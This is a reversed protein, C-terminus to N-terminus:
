LELRLGLQHQREIADEDAGILTRFELTSRVRLTEAILTLHPNIEFSWALLLARGDDYNYFYYSSTQQQMWFRDARASFRHRGHSYSALVYEADFHWLSTLPAGGANIATHGQLRQWQLTWDPDPTLRMAYSDFVTRWAGDNIEPAQRTPDARNDYHLARLELLGRYDANAGGYFGARHDLDRYFLIRGDSPGHGSGFPSGSGPQGLRGFLTTQRDSFAWGRRAMVVGAPDNWGFAAVNAGLNWAGGRQQGLWNLDYEVGITRLEEGVWSNIASPTLSYPTRWGRMRHELSIPPYFAGLKFEHQFASRPLPRWDLHLETLDIAHVDHDGYAYAEATLHWTDAFHGRYGLRLSGLRLGDRQEDFRLKGGGNNLFTTQDTSTDVLRLDLSLELGDAHVACSAALALFAVIGASRDARAPM